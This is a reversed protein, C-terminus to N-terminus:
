PAEPDLTCQWFNIHESSSSSMPKGFFLPVYFERSGVYAGFSNKANVDVCVAGSPLMRWDDYVASYPDLLNDGISEKIASIVEENEYPKSGRITKELYHQQFDRITPNYNEKAADEVIAALTKSGIIGDPKGVDYGLRNLKVQVVLHGAITGDDTQAYVASAPLALMLGIAGAILHMHM